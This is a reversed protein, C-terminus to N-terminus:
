VISWLRLARQQGNVNLLLFDGNATLPTQFTSVISEGQFSINAASLTGATILDGGATINGSVNLSGTINVSGEAQVAIASVAPAYFSGAPPVILLNFNEIVNEPPIAYSSLPGYLVFPGLFPSDPSAIPDHSADPYRPDDIKLTHHNHRHYKSHFRSSM